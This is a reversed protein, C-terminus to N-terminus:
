NRILVEGLFFDVGLTTEGVQAATVGDDHFQGLLEDVYGLSAVSCDLVVSDVRAAISFASSM